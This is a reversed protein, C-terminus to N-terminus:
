KRETNKLIYEPRNKAEDYIRALYMGMIGMFLLILLMKRFLSM